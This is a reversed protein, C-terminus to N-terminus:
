LAPTFIQRKYEIVLRKEEESSERVVVKRGSVMAIITDPTQEVFEIHECNVMFADNNLRTLCIM